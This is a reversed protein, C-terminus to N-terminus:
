TPTSGARLSELLAGGSHFVEVSYGRSRLLTELYGTFAPDDDVLALARDNRPCRWRCHWDWWGKDVM